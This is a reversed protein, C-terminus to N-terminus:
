GWLRGSLLMPDDINSLDSLGFMLGDGGCGSVMDKLAVVGGKKVGAPITVGHGEQAAQALM